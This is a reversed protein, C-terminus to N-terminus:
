QLIKFIFFIGERIFGFFFESFPVDQSFIQHWSAGQGSDRGM